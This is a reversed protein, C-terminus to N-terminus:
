EEGDEIAVLNKKIDKFLKDIMKTKQSDNIYGHFFLMSISKSLKKHLEIKKDQFGQQKLQVELDDSFVGFHLEVQKNIM